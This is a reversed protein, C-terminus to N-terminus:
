EEDLLANGEEADSIQIKVSLKGKIWSVVFDTLSAGGLGVFGCTGILLYPSGKFKEYLLLSWSIGFVTSYLVAAVYDRARVAKGSKMAAALGAFSSIIGCLGALKLADMNGNGGWGDLRARRCDTRCKKRKQRGTGGVIRLETNSFQASPLSETRKTPTAGALNGVNGNAQPM